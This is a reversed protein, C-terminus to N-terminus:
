TVFFIGVKLSHFNIFISTSHKNSHSHGHCPSITTHQHTHSEWVPSTLSLTWCRVAFLGSQHILLVWDGRAINVSAAFLSSCSMNINGQKWTKHEACQIQQAAWNNGLTTTISRDDNTYCDNYCPRLTQQPHWLLDPRYKTISSANHPSFCITHINSMIIYRDGYITVCKKGSLLEDKGAQKVKIKQHMSPDFSARRTMKEQWDIQPWYFSILDWTSCCEVKRGLKLLIVCTYYLYTCSKIKHNSNHLTSSTHSFISIVKRIEKSIVKVPPDRRELLSNITVGWWGWRMGARVDSMPSTGQRADTNRAYQCCSM